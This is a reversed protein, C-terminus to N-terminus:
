SAPLFLSLIRPLIVATASSSNINSSYALDITSPRHDNSRVGRKGLRDILKVIVTLLPELYITRFRHHWFVFDCNQSNGIRFDFRM